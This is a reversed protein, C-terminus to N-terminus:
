FAPARDLQAVPGRRQFTSSMKLAEPKLYRDLQQDAYQKGREQVESWSRGGLFRQLIKEKMQQRSLVGLGYRIFHPILLFLFYLTKWCGHMYFLFPLLSDRNTLTHDFDFVAIPQSLSM